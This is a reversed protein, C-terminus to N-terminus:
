RGRLADARPTPLQVPETYLVREVGVVAGVAAGLVGLVAACGVVNGSTSAGSDHVPPAAAGWIMGGGAGIGLGALAGMGRSKWTIRQIEARAVWRTSTFQDVSIESGRVERVTGEILRGKRDNLAVTQGVQANFTPPLDRARLTIYKIGLALQLRDTEVQQISGSMVRGDKLHVKVTRLKPVSGLHQWEVDSNDAFAPVVIALGM